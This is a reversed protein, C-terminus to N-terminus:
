ILCVKSSLEDCSQLLFDGETDEFNLARDQRPELNITVQTENDQLRQNCLLTSSDDKINCIM